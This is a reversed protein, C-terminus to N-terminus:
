FFYERLQSFAWYNIGVWFLSYSAALLLLLAGGIKRARSQGQWVDIGVVWLGIGILTLLSEGLVLQGYNIRNNTVLTININLFVPHLM